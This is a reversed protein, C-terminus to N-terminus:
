RFIIVKAGFDDNHSSVEEKPSEATYGNTLSDNLIITDAGVAMAKEKFEEICETAHGDAEPATSKIIENMKVGIHM